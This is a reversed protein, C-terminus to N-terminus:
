KDGRESSIGALIWLPDVKPGSLAYRTLFKQVSSLRPDPTEGSYIKQLGRQSAGMREAARSVNGEDYMNILYRARDTFGPISPLRHKM